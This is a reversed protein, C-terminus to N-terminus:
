IKVRIQDGVRPPRNEDFDNFELLSAIEQNYEKAIDALSQGKKLKVVKITNAREEIRLALTNHEFQVPNSPLQSLPQSGAEQEKM